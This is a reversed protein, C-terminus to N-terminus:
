YEFHEPEAKIATIVGSRKGNTERLWKKGEQIAKRETPYVYGSTTVGVFLNGKRYCPDKEDPTFKWEFGKKNSGIYGYGYMNRSELM